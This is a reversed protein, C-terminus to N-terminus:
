DIMGGDGDEGAVDLLVLYDPVRIHRVGLLDIVGARRLGTMQRSVTEITMGLYDAIAERTLPLEFTLGDEPAKNELASARGALISLFTAIRERASKRGLLVMWDHAADLEDLTMELLRKEMAPSGQLIQEFRSRAFLCLRVATLAVADYPAVRRLPRGVFDSPFMLGVTQRRGDPLTKSLSIVGDIVSGLFDTEEGAAVIEQGPAFDRYFKVADLQELEDPECYACVARHRITCDACRDRARSTSQRVLKGFGAIKNEAASLTTEM